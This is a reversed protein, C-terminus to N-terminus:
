HLIVKVLTKIKRKWSKTQYKVDSGDDKPAVDPGIREEQPQYQIEKKKEEEMIQKEERLAEILLKKIKEKTKEDM